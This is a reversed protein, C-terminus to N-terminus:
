REDNPKAELLKKIREEIEDAADQRMSCDGCWREDHGKHESLLRYDSQFSADRIGDNRAELLAKEIREILKIGSPWDCHEASYIEDAIKKYDTM